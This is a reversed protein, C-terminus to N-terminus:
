RAPNRRSALWFIFGILMGVFGNMWALLTKSM